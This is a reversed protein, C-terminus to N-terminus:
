WKAAPAVCPARHTRTSTYRASPRLHRQSVEDAQRPPESLGPDLLQPEIMRSPMTHPRRLQCAFGGVCALAVLLYHGSRSVRIM